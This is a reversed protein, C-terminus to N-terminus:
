KGLNVLAQELVARNADTMECLPPRVEATGIIGARALATKVPVPNPEVFLAKFIPYLKRHIKGAKAYDNALAFNVMQSVQKPFLHSAVSIVGEAGVSMFPLTLSDDGSLVTIDKGLAQKLQDVRDVSGGAEKIYRVHPYKARLREIVPIGIEIGCRGPISYLIIPRDTTEALTAFHRYLGEQSPKNYYPAVLLMADAGADHALRTLDVAEATSNSGTGAIVPVRGRAYEITAEIVQLHEDHDLTPSEGTTGVPVFGNVGGKIQLEILKKLDAYDVQQNRFPTILATITGSIPRLKM